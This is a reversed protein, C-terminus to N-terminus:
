NPPIEFSKARKVHLTGPASERLHKQDCSIIVKSLINVATKYFSYFFFVDIFKAVLATKLIEMRKERSIRRDVVLRRIARASKNVHGKKRGPILSM